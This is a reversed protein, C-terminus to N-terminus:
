LCRNYYDYRSNFFRCVDLCNKKCIPDKHTDFSQIFDYREQRMNPGVKGIPKGGERMHIVCQFHFDAAIVSDDLMLHCKHSDNETLGRVNIGNAFNDIRYRLIPYKEKITEPVENLRPIPQNFQASSIIRIDSVGLSDAFKITDITKDINMENLVIGVSVYTLKSIEKINNIVIDWSGKIDGAMKDGDESCCADLSISYDNVGLNILQKYLELNNSGNTSIAIRNIGKEKSYKVIEKINPHLTPEGGSFRINELPENECWYDINQKVEDLSLMKHKRNGYIESKLGRCYPCNFNCYETIIMECRKMQSTLSANKAREDSLSYFGIEELKNVM